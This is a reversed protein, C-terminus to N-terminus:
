PTSLSFSGDECDELDPGDCVLHSFKGGDSGFFIGFDNGILAFRSQFQYDSEGSDYSLSVSGFNLEGFIPTVISFQGSFFGDVAGTSDVDLALKFNNTFFTRADRIAVSTVGDERNFLVHNDNINGGSELSIGNFAFTPLDIRREFDGSSNVTFAPFDIGNAPWGVVNSAKLKGAPFSVDLAGSLVNWAVTSNATVEYRMPGIAFPTAPPTATLNLLGSSSATGSLGAFSRGFL